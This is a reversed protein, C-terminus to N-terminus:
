HHASFIERETNANADIVLRRPQVNPTNAMPIVQVKGEGEEVPLLAGIRLHTIGNNM